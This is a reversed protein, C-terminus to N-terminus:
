LRHTNDKGYLRESNRLKEQIREYHARVHELDEPTDVSLKVASLDLYGVIQGIRAGPFPERRALTTVHERDTGSAKENLHDLMRASLFEVDQGDVTTRAEENVNSYYDYAKLVGTKIIKSIIYPPILPCDATVRVIYDPKYKDAALKFRSLVDDEPGQLVAIPTKRIYDVLEDGYPVAVVMDVRVKTKHTYNNMYIAAKSCAQIVHKIIPKDGLVEFVKRPFRKSTSRAQIVILVTTYSDM